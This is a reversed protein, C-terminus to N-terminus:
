AFKSKLSVIWLQLVKINENSFDRKMVSVDLVYLKTKNDNTKISIRTM